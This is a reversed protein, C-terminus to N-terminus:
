SAAFDSILALALSVLSMREAHPGAAASREVAYLEPLGSSGAKSVRLVAMPSDVRM